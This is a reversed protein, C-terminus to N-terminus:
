LLKHVQQEPWTPMAGIRQVRVAIEAPRVPAIASDTVRREATSLRGAEAPEVIALLHIPASFAKAAEAAGWVIALRVGAPPPSDPEWKLVRHGAAELAGTLEPDHRTLLLDM